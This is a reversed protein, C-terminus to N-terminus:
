EPSTGRKRTVTKFPRINERDLRAALTAHDFNLHPGGPAEAVSHAPGDLSLHPTAWTRAM